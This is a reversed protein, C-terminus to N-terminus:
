TSGEKKPRADGRKEWVFLYLLRHRGVGVSRLGAQTRRGGIEGSRVGWFIPYGRTFARLLGHVDAVSKRQCHVLIWPRGATTSLCVDFSRHAHGECSLVPQHCHEVLMRVAARVGPEIHM